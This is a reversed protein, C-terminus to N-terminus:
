EKLQAETAVVRDVAEEHHGVRGRAGRGHQERPQQRGKCGHSRGTVSRPRRSCPRAACRALERAPCPALAHQHFGSNFPRTHETPGTHLRLNFNLMKFRRAARSSRRVGGRRACRRALAVADHPRSCSRRASRPRQTGDRTHRDPPLDATASECLADYCGRWRCTDGPSQAPSKHRPGRPPTRSAHKDGVGGRRVGREAATKHRRCVFRQDGSQCLWADRCVEVGKFSNSHSPARPAHHTCASRSSNHRIRRPTRPRRSRLILQRCSHIREPGRSASDSRPRGGPLPQLRCRSAGTRAAKASTSHSARCPQKIHM